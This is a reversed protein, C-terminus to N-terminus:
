LMGKIVNLAYQIAGSNEMFVKSCAQSSKEYYEKDQPGGFEKNIYKPLTHTKHYTVIRWRVWVDICRAVGSIGESFFVKATDEAGIANDGIRALLGNEEINNLYENETFHFYKVNDETLEIKNM